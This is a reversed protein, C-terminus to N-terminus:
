GEEAPLFPAIVRDAWDLFRAAREPDQADPSPHTPSTGEFYRPGPIECPDECRAGLARTADALSTAVPLLPMVWRLMWRGLGRASAAANVPIFGPCVADAHLGSAGYRSEIGRAVWLQALKGNKYARGGHYGQDLNPDEARFDVAGGFTGPAHLRSTVFLVRGPRALLPALLRTLLWPAVASVQLSEELRDETLCRADPPSLVGANHVLFLDRRGTHLLQDAAQRVQALSSLELVQSSLSASPHARQVTRLAEALAEARRATLCVHHGRGALWSALALGLGRNAGTILFARPM